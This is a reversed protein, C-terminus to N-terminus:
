DLANLKEELMKLENQYVNVLAERASECLCFGDGECFNIYVANNENRKLTSICKTFGEIDKVIDTVKLAREITM